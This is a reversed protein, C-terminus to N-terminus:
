SGARGTGAVVLDFFGFDGARVETVGTLDAAAHATPTSGVGVVPCAHGAACTSCAVGTSRGCCACASPNAPPSPCPPNWPTSWRRSTTASPRPLRPAGFVAGREDRLPVTSSKVLRGDSTRTPHDLREVAEDGAVAVVPRDPQRYDHLVVECSRGFTAALGPVAGKVAALVADATM